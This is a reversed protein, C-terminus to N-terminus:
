TTLRSIPLFKLSLSIWRSLFSTEYLMTSLFPFGYTEVCTLPPSSFTKDGSSILAM